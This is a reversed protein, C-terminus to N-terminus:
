FKQFQASLSANSEALLGFAADNIRKPDFASWWDKSDPVDNGHLRARIEHLVSGNAHAHPVEPNNAAKHSFDQMLRNLSRRAFALETLKARYEMEVADLGPFQELDALHRGEHKLFSIDFNETNPTYAWEV